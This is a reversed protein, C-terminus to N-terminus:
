RQLLYPNKELVSGRSRDRAAALPGEPASAPPQATIPAAPEAPNSAVVPVRLRLRKALSLAVLREARFRAKREARTEVRPSTDEGREPDVIAAIVSPDFPATAPAASPAPAPQPDVHPPEIQAVAAPATAPAAHAAPLARASKDRSSPSGLLLASLALAVCALLAALPWRPAAPKRMAALASEFAEGSGRETEIDPLQAATAFAEIASATDAAAPSLAVPEAPSPPPASDRKADMVLALTARRKEIPDAFLQALAEALEHTSAILDHERGVRGLDDLLEGVSQYREDIPRQLAKMCVADIATPLRSNRCSPAEIKDTLVRELVAGIGTPSYFLQEGTLVEWLVAGLAFVDARADIDDSGSAQEPAMYCPTGKLVGPLTSVRYAM